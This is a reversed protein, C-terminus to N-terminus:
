SFSQFKKLLCGREREREAMDIESQKVGKAECGCGRRGIGRKLGLLGVEMEGSVFGEFGGVVVTLDALLLKM